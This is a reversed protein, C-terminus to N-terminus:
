RPGPKRGGEVGKQLEFISQNTPLVNNSIKDECLTPRLTVVALSVNFFHPMVAAVVQSASTNRGFLAHQMVPCKCIELSSLPQSPGAWTYEKHSPKLEQIFATNKPQHLLVYLTYMNTPGPQFDIGYGRTVGNKMWDNRRDNLLAPVEYELDWTM